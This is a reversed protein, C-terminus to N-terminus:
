WCLLICAWYFFTIFIVYNPNEHPNSILSMYFFNVPRVREDKEYEGLRARRHPSLHATCDIRRQTGQVGIRGRYAPHLVDVLTRAALCRPQQAAPLALAGRASAGRAARRPRAQVAAERAREQRKQRLRGHAKHCQGETSKCPETPDDSLSLLRVIKNGVGRVFLSCPRGSGALWSRSRHARILAAFQAM